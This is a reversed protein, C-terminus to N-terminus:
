LSKIYEIDEETLDFWESHSKKNNFLTHLERELKYNNSTEIIHILEHNESSSLKLQNLRQKPDYSAGIKYRGNEGKILYVYEKRKDKIFTHTTKKANYGNAQVQLGKELKEIMKKRYNEEDFSNITYQLEEVIRKLEEIRVVGELMKAINLCGGIKIFEYETLHEGVMNNNEDLILDRNKVGRKLRELRWYRMEFYQCYETEDDFGYEKKIEDCYYNM